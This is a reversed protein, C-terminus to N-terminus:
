RITKIGKSLEIMKRAMEIEEPTSERNLEGVFKEWEDDDLPEVTRIAM